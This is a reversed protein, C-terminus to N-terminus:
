AMKNRSKIVAIYLGFVLGAILLLLIDNDIPVVLGPPPLMPTRTPVPPSQALGSNGVLVLLFCMIYIKLVSAM